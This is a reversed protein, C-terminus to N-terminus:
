FQERYFIFNLNSPTSASHSVKSDLDADYAVMRTIVEGPLTDESFRCSNTMALITDFINYLNIMTIVVITVGFTSSKFPVKHNLLRWLGPSHRECRRCDPSDLFYFIVLSGLELRQIMNIQMCFDNTLVKCFTTGQIEFLYNRQSITLEIQRRQDRIFSAAIQEM